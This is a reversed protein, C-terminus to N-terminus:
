TPEFIEVISRPNRVAIQIHSQALIMSGRFTSGGEQFVGRVTDFPEERQASYSAYWNIVACDLKRLGFLPAGGRNQPLPEGREAMEAAFLAYAEGLVSTAETDLLDLCDGLDICAGVVAPAKYKGNQAQAEAWEWARQFGNEWFYVGEGLWDYDNQSTRFAANGSLIADAVTRDCGHYGVVVRQETCM